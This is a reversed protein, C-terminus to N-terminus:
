RRNELWAEVGSLFDSFSLYQVWQFRQKLKKKLQKNPLEGNLWQEVWFNREDNPIPELVLYKRNKLDLEIALIHNEKMYEKLIPKIREFALALTEKKHESTPKVKAFALKTSRLAKIQSETNLKMAVM